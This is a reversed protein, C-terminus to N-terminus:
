YIEISLSILLDQQKESLAPCHRAKVQRPAFFFLFSLVGGGSFIRVAQLRNQDMMTSNDVQNSIVMDSRLQNQNTINSDSGPQGGTIANQPQFINFIEKEKEKIIDASVGMQYLDQFLKTFAKKTNSSSACSAVSDISVRSSTRHLDFLNNIQVQMAQIELFECSFLSILM